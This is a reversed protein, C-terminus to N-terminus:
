PRQGPLSANWASQRQNGLGSRHLELAAATLPAAAIATATFAATAPSTTAPGTATPGTTALSTSGLDGTALGPDHILRERWLRHQPPADRGRVALRWAM